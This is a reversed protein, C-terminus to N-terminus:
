ALSDEMCHLYRERWIMPGCSKQKWSYIIIVCAISSLLITVQKKLKENVSSITKLGDKLRSNEKKIHYCDEELRKTLLQM